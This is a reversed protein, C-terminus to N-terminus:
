LISHIMLKVSFPRGSATRLGPETAGRSDSGDRGLHGRYRAAPTGSVEDPLAAACHRGPESYTTLLALREIATSTSRQDHGDQGAAKHRNNRGSSAATLRHPRLFRRLEDGGFRFGKLSLLHDSFQGIM